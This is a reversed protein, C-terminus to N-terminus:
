NNNASNKANQNKLIDFKRKFIDGNKYDFYEAVEPGWERVLDNHVEYLKKAKKVSYRVYYIAWVQPFAWVFIWGIAVMGYVRIWVDSDTLLHKAFESPTGTNWIDMIYKTIGMINFVGITNSASRSIRKDIIFAVITPLVSVVFFIFAYGSIVLVVLSVMTLLIKIMLSAASSPRKAKDKAM